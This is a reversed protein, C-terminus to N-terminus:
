AQLYIFTHMLGWEAQKRAAVTLLEREADPATSSWDMDARSEPILGGNSWGETFDALQETRLDQYVGIFLQKCLFPECINAEYIRLLDQTFRSYIMRLPRLIQTFEFYIRPLDAYFLRLYQFM